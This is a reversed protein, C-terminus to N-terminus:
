KKECFDRSLFTRPMTCYFKAGARCHAARGFYFIGQECLMEWQERTECSYSCWGEEPDLVDAYRRGSDVYWIAKGERLDLVECWTSIMEIHKM